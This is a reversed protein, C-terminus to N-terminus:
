VYPTLLTQREYYFDHFARRQTSGATKAMRYYAVFSGTPIQSVSTGIAVGNVTATVSTTNFTLFVHYATAAAIGIALNTITNPVGGILTVLQWRVVGSVIAVQVYAADNQNATTAAFGFQWTFQQGSPDPLDNFVVATGITLDGLDPRYSAQAGAGRGSRAVLCNQNNLACRLEMYGPGRRGATPVDDVPVSFLAGTSESSTTFFGEGTSTSNTATNGSTFHTFWFATNAALL